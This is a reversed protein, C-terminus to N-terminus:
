AGRGSAALEGQLLRRLELREGPTLDSVLEEGMAAPTMVGAARSAEVDLDAALDAVLALAQDGASSPLGAAVEAVAAREPVGGPPPTSRVYMGIAVAAIALSLAAMASVRSGAWAPLARFSAGPSSSATALTDEDNAIAGHVRRELHSWFLPSPEPADVAAVAAMVGRLDALRRRCADCSSLHPLASEAGTGEAVDLFQDPTLHGKM